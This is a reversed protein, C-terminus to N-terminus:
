QWRGLIREFTSDTAAMVGSLIEVIEALLQARRPNTV